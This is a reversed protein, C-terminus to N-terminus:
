KRADALAKKAFESYTGDDVSANRKALDVEVSSGPLEFRMCEGFGQSARDVYAVIEVDHATREPPRQDEPVPKGYNAM